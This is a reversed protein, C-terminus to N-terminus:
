RGGYIAEYIEELYETAEEIDSFGKEYTMKNTNVYITIKVERIEEM